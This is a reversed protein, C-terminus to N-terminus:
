LTTQLRIAYRLYCNANFKPDNRDLKALLAMEATKLVDLPWISDPRQEKKRDIDLIQPNEQLLEPQTGWEISRKFKYWHICVLEHQELRFQHRFFYEIRGFYYQTTVSGDSNHEPLKCM